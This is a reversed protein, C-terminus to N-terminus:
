ALLTQFYLLGGVGRMRVGMSAARIIEQDRKMDVPLHRLAEANSRVAALVVERDAQLEGLAHKIAQGEQQVAALVIGRDARLDDHLLELSWGNQEVAARGVEPDRRLSEHAFRVALGETRVAALVVERDARLAPSVFELARGRVRVAALAVEPDNRFEGPTDRLEEPDRQVAALVIEKDARLSHFDELRIKGCRVGQLTQVWQSDLRVLRVEGEPGGEFFIDGLIESNNLLREGLLLRQEQEPIDKGCEIEWKLDAVDFSPDITVTCLPAASLGGVVRVAM